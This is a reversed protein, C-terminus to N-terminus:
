RSARRRPTNPTTKTDLEDFKKLSSSTSVVCNVATLVVAPRKKKKEKLYTNRHLTVDPRPSFRGDDGQKTNVCNEHQVEPTWATM